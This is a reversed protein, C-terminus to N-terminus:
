TSLRQRRTAVSAVALLALLLTSPEPVANANAPGGLLTSFDAIDGLDFTGDQNVDGVENAPFPFGHAAYATPNVLAEIFPPADAATLNGDRNM